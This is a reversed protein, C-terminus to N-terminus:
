PGEPAAAFERRLEANVERRSFREPKFEAIPDDDEFECDEDDEGVPLRDLLAHYGGPGGSDEPPGARAGGICMPYSM